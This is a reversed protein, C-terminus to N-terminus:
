SGARRANEGGEALFRRMAEAAHVAFARQRSRAWTVGLRVLPHRPRSFAEIAFRVTGEGRELRVSLREQGSMVHRPLTGLTLSTEDEAEEVDLVRVFSTWWLGAGRGAIAVVEGAILPRPREAQLHVEGHPSGGHLVPPAAVLLRVWPLFFPVGLRLGVGARAFAEEGPALLTERRHHLFGPPPAGARSGQEPFSLAREAQEAFLPWLRDGSPPLWSLM